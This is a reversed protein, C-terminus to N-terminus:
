TKKKSSSRDMSEAGLRMLQFLQRMAAAIQPSEIITGVVEKGYSIIATKDGYTYLNVPETYAGLPYFSMERGLREDNEESFHKLKESGEEIGHVHIGLKSRKEIIEYMKDGLLNVDGESRIFYIDKKVKLQDEYMQLIGNRGEFYRIGPQNSYTYFYSLLQPMANKIQQETEIVEARKGEVLRNVSTPNTPVYRYKKPSGKREALGLEVLKDLIMYCNTRKEEILKSLEPASLSGNKILAIYAKAQTNSLGAKTLIETNM